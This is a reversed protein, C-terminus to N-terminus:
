VNIQIPDEILETKPAKSTTAKNKKDNLVWRSIETVGIPYITLGENSVRIRLFNKFGEYRLSSFSENDHNGLLHNSIFLHIGFITSVVFGGILYIMLQTMINNYINNQFLHVHSIFWLIHYFVIIQVISHLAGFIKYVIPKYKQNTPIDAHLYLTGILAWNFVLLILNNLYLDKITLIFDFFNATGIQSIHNMFTASEGSGSIFKKSEIIWTILLFFAGVYLSFSKNYLPFLFNRRSLSSSDKKSPFTAKLNFNGERLGYLKEPLNHTPHLFAGGGGSVIKQMKVGETSATYRSYHHLDGTLSLIYNLPKHADNFFRDEFYRLSRYGANKGDAYFVWSPEATCLIVNDNAKMRNKLGEFYNLQVQDVDGELQVDIAWIWWNHPLEIAFYSRAQKTQWNGVLRQRCFLRIFNNLGDYWDHNGAVAYMDAKPIDNSFPFALNYPAKFRNRYEERSATPYVQDGGLILIDGRPLTTGAILLEQQALLHAMTYTSDFGDGLDAIYDVWVEDKETYCYAENVSEALLAMIERKDAFSGFLNSVVARFGTAALQPIHFWSVMEQREFDYTDEDDLSHFRRENIIFKAFKNDLLPNKM